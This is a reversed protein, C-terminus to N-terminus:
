SYYSKFEFILKVVLGTEPKFADPFLCNDALNNGSRFQIKIRKFM